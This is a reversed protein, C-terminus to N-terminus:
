EAVVLVRRAHAMFPLVRRGEEAFARVAPEADDGDVAIASEYLANQRELWEPHEERLLLRLGAAEVLQGIDVLPTRGSPSEDLEWTTLVIRGDGRLLAGAERLAAERDPLMQLADICVLADASQRDLSTESADAVVFSARGDPVFLEARREAEAIATPSFDVGTLHAGADRAFWLGISLRGALRSM